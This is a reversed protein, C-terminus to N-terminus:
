NNSAQLQKLKMYKLYTEYAAGKEIIFGTKGLLFAGKLVFGKFFRWAPNAILNLLSSRKGKALMAKASITSFKVIQAQYEALTYYSYHEIEADIEKINGGPIEFKDHPNIGTWQGKERAWLRLKKDPYWSGKRVWTGCFNTCRKFVYGDANWNAKLKEIEARMKPSVAEDADLSLVIDCSAQEKALNKQEIHGKFANQIFRAGYNEAIEQTKDSSFSDVVVIEDAFSKVSELCRGLNREENYTIVVVSITVSKGM